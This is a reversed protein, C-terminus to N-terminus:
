LVCIDWGATWWKRCDIGNVTIQQDQLSMVRESKWYGIFSDLLLLGNSNEYCQAYMREALVNNNLETVEGDDFGMEYWCLDFSQIRTRADFQNAM